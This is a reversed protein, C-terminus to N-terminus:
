PDRQYYTMLSETLPKSSGISFLFEVIDYPAVLGWHIGTQTM